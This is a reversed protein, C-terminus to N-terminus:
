LIQTNNILFMCLSYIFFVESPKQIFSYTGSKNAAAGGPPLTRVSALQPFAVPVSGSVVFSFWRLTM